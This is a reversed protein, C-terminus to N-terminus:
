NTRTGLANYIKGDRVIYMVGDVLVKKTKKGSHEYASQDIGTPTQAIPSLELVFRDDTVGAELTVTYDTLGLQTRVDTQKDWLVIGTGDSGEPLAFRYEGGEATQVGVPVASVSDPLCNGAMKYYGALTYINASRSNLLKSLDLNLDYGETAGEAMRSIYTVDAEASDRYLVLKLTQGDQAERRAPAKLLGVLPNDTVPTWTIDGAYQALYAHTATFDYDEASQVTYVPKGDDVKWTFFYKLPTQDLNETPLDTTPYDDTAWGGTTIKATNFSPSGILNWNSDIARRDYKPNGAGNDGTQAMATTQNWQNCPLEKITTTTSTGEDIRGVQVDTKASPFYLRMATAGSPFSLNTVRIVYGRNAEMKGSLSMNYWWSSTEAWWGRAARYDGHYTQIVWKDGYGAIGFIDSINCDYPLSIWYYADTYGGTKITRSPDDWGTSTFKIATYIQTVEEVLVDTSSVNLVTPAGDEVREVLMNAQLDLTTNINVGSEPKWAAILRNTRFDYTIEVTYDAGAVGNILQKNEALTQAVGNYTTTVTATSQGKVKAEIQYNWNSVDTFSQPTTSADLTYGSGDHVMVTGTALGKIKIDSGGGSIIARAFTNTTPDYSYRVNGGGTTKGTPAYADSGLVGALNANYENGVTAVVSQVGEFWDVWYHDYTDKFITSKNFAIFKTGTTGDKSEGNELYNKTTASVHIYYDGDYVALETLTTGDTKATFVGGSMGELAGGTGFFASVAKADVAASAGAHFEVSGSSSAWFSLVDDTSSVINSVYKTGDAGTTEVWYIANSCGTPKLNWDSEGTNEYKQMHTLRDYKFFNTRSADNENHMYYFPFENSLTVVYYEDGCVTVKDTMKQTTLQYNQNDYGDYLFPNWGKFYMNPAWNHVDKVLVTKTAYPDIVARFTVNNRVVYLNRESADNAADNWERENPDTLMVKSVVYGKDPTVKCWVQTTPLVQASNGEAVIQKTDNEDWYYLEVTAHEVATNTITYTPVGQYNTSTHYTCKGDDGSNTTGTPIFTYSLGTLTTNEVYPTQHSIYAVNGTGGGINVINQNNGTYGYNNSIVFKSYDIYNETMTYKYLNKTGTVLNFGNYQAAHSDRGIRLYCGNGWDNGIYTKDIYFSAGKPIMWKWTGRDDNSGEKAGSLLNATADIDKEWTNNWVEYSSSSNVWKCEAFTPANTRIILCYKWDGAPMVVQYYGSNGAVATLAVFTANTNSESTTRLVLKAEGYGYDNENSYKIGTFYLIEGGKFTRGWMEGACLTLLLLTAMTARSHRSLPAILNFLKSKM